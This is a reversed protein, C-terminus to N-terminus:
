EQEDVLSSAQAPGDKVLEKAQGQGEEAGFGTRRNQRANDYPELSTDTSGKNLAPGSKAQEATEAQLKSKQNQMSM